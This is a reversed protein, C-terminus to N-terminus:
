TRDTSIMCRSACTSSPQTRTDAAECPLLKRPVTSSLYLSNIGPQLTAYYRGLREIIRTESQPIIVVAMKAFLIVLLIIAILVIYEISM